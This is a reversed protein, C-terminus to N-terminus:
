GTKIDKIEMEELSVIPIAMYQFEHYNPLVGSLIKSSQLKGKLNYNCNLGSDEM